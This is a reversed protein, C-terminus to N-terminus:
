KLKPDMRVATNIDVVELIEVVRDKPLDGDQMWWAFHLNEWGQGVRDLIATLLPDGSLKQHRFRGFADAEFERWQKAGLLHEIRRHRIFPPWYHLWWELLAPLGADRKLRESVLWKHRDAEEFAADYLSPAAGSACLDVVVM